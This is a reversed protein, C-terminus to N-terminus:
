AGAPTHTAHLADCVHPAPRRHSPQPPAEGPAHAGQLPVHTAPAVYRRPSSYMGAHTHAGHAVGVSPTLKTARLQVGVVFVTSCGHAVQGGPADYRVVAHVRVPSVRQAGHVGGTGRSSSTAGHPAVVSACYPGHGLFRKQLPM